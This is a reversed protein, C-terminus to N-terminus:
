SLTYLYECFTNCWSFSMKVPLNYIFLYPILVSIILKNDLKEPIALEFTAVPSTDSLILFAISDIATSVSTILSRAAVQFRPVSDCKPAM